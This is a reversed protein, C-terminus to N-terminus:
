TQPNQPQGSVPKKATRGRRRNSTNRAGTNSSGANAKQAASATETPSPAVEKVVAANTESNLKVPELRVAKVPQVKKVKGKDKKSKKKNKKEIKKVLKSYKKALKKAMKDTSKDLKRAASEDQEALVARVAETINAVMAKKGTRKNKM